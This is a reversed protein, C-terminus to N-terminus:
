CKGFCEVVTATGAQIKISTFRGTKMRFGLTGVSAGAKLNKGNIQTISCAVTPIVEVGFSIGQSLNLYRTYSSGTKSDTGSGMHFTVDEAAGLSIIDNEFDGSLERQEQAATM